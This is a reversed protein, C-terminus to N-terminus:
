AAFRGAGGRKSRKSRVGLYRHGHETEPQSREATGPIEGNTVASVEALVAGDLGHLTSAPVHAVGGPLL